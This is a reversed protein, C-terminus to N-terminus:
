FTIVNTITCTKSEGASIVGSCDTSFTPTITDPFAPHTETVEYEGPELLIVTGEASGQFESRSPNNGAVHITFFESTACESGSFCRVIKRVTLEGTQQEEGPEEEVAGESVKQKATLTVINENGQIESASNTCQIDLPLVGNGCTNSQSLAQNKEKYKKDADASVEQIPTIMVGTVILMTLTISTVYYISPIKKM